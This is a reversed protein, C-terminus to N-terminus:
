ETRLCDFLPTWSIMLFSGCLAIQTLCLLAETEREGWVVITKKEESVRLAEEHGPPAVTRSLPAQLGM